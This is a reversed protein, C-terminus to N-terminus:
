FGNSLLRVNDVLRDYTVIHLGSIEHETQRRMQYAINDMRKRRSVVLCYHFGWSPINLNLNTLNCSRLFYDRENDLWRKWDRVQTLGKRVSNTESNSSQIKYDINIDEFEILVIHYGSSNRGLLMYDVRFEKGLAQEPAIYAEHHGFDYDKFISAPIFWKKNDKIYKQIDHEKDCQNLVSLLKSSETDFDMNRYWGPKFEIFNEPANYDM